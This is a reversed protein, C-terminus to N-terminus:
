KRQMKKLIQQKKKVMKEKKFSGFSACFITTWAFFAMKQVLINEANNTFVRLM